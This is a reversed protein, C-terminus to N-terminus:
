EGHRNELAAEIAKRMSYHSAWSNMARAVMEESVQAAVPPRLYLKDGRKAGMQTLTSDNDFVDEVRCFAVADPGPESAALAELETACNRLISQQIHRASVSKDRWKKALEQLKEPRPATTM